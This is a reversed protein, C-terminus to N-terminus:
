PKLPAPLETLCVAFQEGVAVLQGRAIVKGELLVDVPAELAQNLVLVQHERLAMLEGVTVVAEGICVRLQAKVQHLPNVAVEAVLPPASASPPTEHIEGFAIVHATSPSSSM